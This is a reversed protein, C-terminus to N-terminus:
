HLIQQQGRILSSSASFIHNASYKVRGSAFWIWVQGSVEGVGYSSGETMGDSQLGPGSDKELYDTKVLGPKLM